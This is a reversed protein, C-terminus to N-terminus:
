RTRRQAVDRLFDSVLTEPSESQYPEERSGYHRHDGTRWGACHSVRARVSRHGGIRHTGGSLVGEGSM